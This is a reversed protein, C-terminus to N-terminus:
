EVLLKAQGTIGAATRIYLLYNGKPLSKVSSELQRKEDFRGESRSAIRGAADYFIMSVQQGAITNGAATITINDSSPNPYVAIQTRAALQGIGSHDTLTDAKRSYWMGRGYTAAWIEKRAYEIGLDTVEVTPLNTNYAAWATMTTDMFFVGIDTGVYRTFTTSDIVICNVPVNPLGSSINAWGASPSYHAIRTGSYGSFTAFIHTSDRPDVTIDSVSGSYPVTIQQWSIGDNATYRISPRVLAYTYNVTQPSVAIRSIQTNSNFVPSYATWSNGLDNTIFLQNYGAILREQQLPHLVYPTIWDGQPNGPINGSINNFTVGGDQTNYITGYQIATYFVSPFNADIECNMGDGGTHQSYNNTNYDIQKTGNDQAGGLVFGANNAVANRYFQTTVLGNSIDNWLQSSPNLTRYLGGDNCEFLVKPRSPNFALYHKDAHVTMVGPLTSYWQTVISWHKGGDTSQYTNVGGVYIKNSDTPSIAMALDYWGQGSCSNSGIQMDGSLINRTCSSDSMIKVFTHGTDSSNYIGELKSSSSASAVAKVIRPNAPTVAMTIRNVGSFNSVQLWSAGGNVSRFIQGSTNGASVSSAYLISTDTPHSLVQKFNGSLTNTWSIGGDYSKYLGASTAVTLSNTDLRNMVLANTLVLQSSQWQLGTQAWTQGGDVSKLVGVSYNDGADRDGTCLYISNPNYPNIDIDSVGLVPLNDTMVTWSQGDNTTKWAGGGASGVWYTNTDAPHFAIVNMRGIGNYGSFTTFPGASIWNAQNAGTTKATNRIAAQQRYKEWAQWNAAPSVPYGKEDTHQGMHWVWRDFQYNEDEEAERGGGGQLKEKREKEREEEEKETNKQRWTNIIDKLKRPHNGAPQWPQAALNVAYFICALLLFKKM